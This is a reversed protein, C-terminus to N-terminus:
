LSGEGILLFHITKGNLRRPVSCHKRRTTALIVGHVETYDLYRQLQRAVANASSDIKVELGIAIEPFWFDIRDRESFHHEKEFSFGANTLAIAMGAQLDTESSFRFAYSRLAAIIDAPTLFGM